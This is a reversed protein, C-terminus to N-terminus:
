ARILASVLAVINAHNGKQLTYPSQEFCFNTTYRPCVFNAIMNVNICYRKLCPIRYLKEALLFLHDVLMWLIGDNKVRNLM